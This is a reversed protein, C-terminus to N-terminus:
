QRSLYERVADIPRRPTAIRSTPGTYALKLRFPTPTRQEELAHAIWGVAASVLTLVPASGSPMGSAWAVAGLAYTDTPQGAGRKSFESALADVVAAEAPLAHRLMDFLVVARADKSADHTFAAAKATGDLAGAAHRAGREAAAAFASEIRAILRAESTAATMAAAVADAISGGSAVTLRAILAPPTLGRECSLSLAADVVGVAAIPLPRRALKTSLRIAFRAAAAEPGPFADALCAMVDSAAATGMSPARDAHAVAIAAAILGVRRVPPARRALTALERTAAALSRADARWTDMRELSGTWLWWALEEFRLDRCASCVDVGRYLIRNAGPEVLSLESSVAVDSPAGRGAGARKALRAIDAPDFLSTRGDTSRHRPVLGRSVYAYLTAPKVGLRAAAQTSTLLSTSETL